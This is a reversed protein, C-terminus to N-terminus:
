AYIPFQGIDASCREITYGVFEKHLPVAANNPSRGSLPAAALFITSLMSVMQRFWVEHFPVYFVKCEHVDWRALLCHSVSTALMQVQCRVFHKM